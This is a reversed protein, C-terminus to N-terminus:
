LIIVYTVTKTGFSVFGHNVHLIDLEILPYIHASKPEWKM